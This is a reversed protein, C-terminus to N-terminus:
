TFSYQVDSSIAPADSVRQLTSASSLSSKRAGASTEIRIKQGNRRRASCSAAAARRTTNPQKADRSHAGAASLLASVLLVVNVTERRDHRAPRGRESGPDLALSILRREARIGTLVNAVWRPEGALWRIPRPSDAPLPGAWNSPNARVSSPTVQDAAHLRRAPAVDHHCSPTETTGNQPNSTAHSDGANM